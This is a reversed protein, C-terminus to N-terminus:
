RSCSNCNNKENINNLLKQLYDNIDLYFSEVHIKILPNHVGICLIGANNLSQVGQLSDEIGIINGIINYKEICVLFSEPSPKSITYDEATIIGNFCQKINNIKLLIEISNRSGGSVIFLKCGIKKLQFLLKFDVLNKVKSLNSQYSISKYEAIKLAYDHNSIYNKIVDITKKGKITEYNPCKGLDYKKFTQIFAENHSKDTDFITGDFDFLINYM